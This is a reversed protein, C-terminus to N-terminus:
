VGAYKMSSEFYKKVEAKSKYTYVTLLVSVLDSNKKKYTCHSYKIEGMKGAEKLPELVASGISAEVESKKLLRCADIEQSFTTSLSSILIFAVLNLLTKM